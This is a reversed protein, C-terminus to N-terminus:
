WPYGLGTEHLIYNREELIWLTGKEMNVYLIDKGKKAAGYKRYIEPKTLVMMDALKAEITILVDDDMKSKLFAGLINTVLINQGEM